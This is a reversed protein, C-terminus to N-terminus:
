STPSLLQNSFPTSGPYGSSSKIMAKPIDLNIEEVVVALKDIKVSIVSSNSNSHFVPEGDETRQLNILDFHTDKSTPSQSTHTLTELKSEV